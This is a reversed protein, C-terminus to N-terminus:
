TRGLSLSLSLSLFLTLSVQYEDRKKLDKINVRFVKLVDGFKIESGDSSAKAGFGNPKLKKALPGSNSSSPNPSSLQKLENPIPRDIFLFSSVCSTGGSCSCGSRSCYLSLSLSSKSELISYWYGNKGM